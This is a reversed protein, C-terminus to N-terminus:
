LFAGGQTRNELELSPVVIANKQKRDTSDANCYTKSHNQARPAGWPSMNSAKSRQKATGTPLKPLSQAIKPPRSVGRLEWPSWKM